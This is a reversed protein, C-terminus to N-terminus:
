DAILIDAKVYQLCLYYLDQYLEPVNKNKAAEVLDELWDLHHKAFLLQDETSADEVLLSVYEFVLVLHDPCHAFQPPIEFGAKILLAEMHRGWDSLLLGKQNAFPMECSPDRTWVKYLSEIPSALPHVPGMTKRWMEDWKEMDPLEAAEWSKPYQIGYAQEVKLWLEQFGSSDIFTLLEGSPRQLLQSLSIYAQGRMQQTDSM